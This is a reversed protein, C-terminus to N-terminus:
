ESREILVGHAICPITKGQQVSTPSLLAGTGVFLVKQYNGKEMLPLIDAGLVAASCGCGSGGSHTDQGDNDYLMVGCDVYRAGMFYGNNEVLQQCLESGLIGLDGSVILDIEDTTEKLFTSITDAAAPAMASGMDNNDAIGKDVIKGAIVKSIRWPTKQDTLLYCGAATATWQNTMFRQVGMETPYRLQREATDHHSSSVVGVRNAMNAELLVSAIILGEALTSCAGYLGLYPIQTMRATFTTAIIQNLLDGGIFFDLDYMTLKKKELAIELAYQQMKQEAMEWSDQGFLNDSFYYDFKEGLPGAHEKRGVVTAWSELYINRNLKKSQM